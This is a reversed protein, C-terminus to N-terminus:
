VRERCSARGIEDMRSQSKFLQALTLYPQVFEPHDTIASKLLVEAQPYEKATLHLNAKLNSVFARISPPIDKDALRTDCRKHAQDIKKQDALIAIINSFVDMQDPDKDLAKELYALALDNNRKLSALRGLGVLSQPIDPHLDAMKRFIAESRDLEKRATYINALLMNSNYHLPVATLIKSIEKEASTLDDKQFYLYAYLYRALCCLIYVM